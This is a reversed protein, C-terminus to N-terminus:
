SPIKLLPQLLRPVLYYLGQDIDCRLAKTKTTGLSNLRSQAQHLLLGRHLGKDNNNREVQATFTIATAALIYQEVNTAHLLSNPNPM